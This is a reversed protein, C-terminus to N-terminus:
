RAEKQTLAHIRNATAKGIGPTKMLEELSMDNLDDPCRLGSAILSIATKEGIGSAQAVWYRWLVMLWMEKLTKPDGFKKVPEYSKVIGPYKEELEDLRDLKESISVDSEVITRIKKLFPLIKTSIEQETHKGFETWIGGRKIKVIQDPTFGREALNRRFLEDIRREDREPKLTGPKALEDWSKTIPMWVGYAFFPDADPDDRYDDTEDYTAVTRGHKELVRLPTRLGMTAHFRYGNVVDEYAEPVRSGM